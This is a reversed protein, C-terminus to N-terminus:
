EKKEGEAPAAAADTAAAAEGEAAPAAEEVKEEKPATVNALALNNASTSEVGEPLKLDSIHLTEGMALESVDATLFEPISTPLCEVEIDRLLINLVGGEESVGKAKGEIRVEVTVKVKDSMNLAYFDIHVPRRNVPHYTVEKMLVSLGNLVKDDSKLKFIANEYKRSSYKVVMKEEIGCSTNDIKPGYVIAPINKKMRLRRSNGRGNKRNIAELTITENSM